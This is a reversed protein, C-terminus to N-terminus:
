RRQVGEPEFHFRDHLFAAEFETFLAGENSEEVEPRSDAPEAKAQSGQEIQLVFLYKRGAVGSGGGCIGQSVGHVGAVRALSRGAQLKACHQHGHPKM